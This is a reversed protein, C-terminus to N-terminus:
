GFQLICEAALPMAGIIVGVKFEEELRSEASITQLIIENFKHLLDDMRNGFLYVCSKM